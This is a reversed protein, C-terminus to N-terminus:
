AQYYNINFVIEYERGENRPSESVWRIAEKETLTFGIVADCSSHSNYLVDQKLLFIRSNKM